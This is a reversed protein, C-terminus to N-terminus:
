CFLRQVPLKSFDEKPRQWPESVLWGMPQLERAVASLDKEIERNLAKSEWGLKPLTEQSENAVALTTKELSFRRKLGDEETSPLSSEEVWLLNGEPRYSVSSNPLNTPSEVEYSAKVAGSKLDAQLTFQVTDFVVPVAEQIHVEDPSAAGNVAHDKNRQACALLSSYQSLYTQPTKPPVSVM